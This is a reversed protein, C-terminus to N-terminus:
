LSAGLRNGLRGSAWAATFIVLALKAIESPQGNISGFRIWRRAGNIKRGLGPILVAVLLVLAGVMIPLSCRRLTELPTTRALIFVGTGLTVWLLQRRLFLTVDDARLAIGVSTSSYVLVVGFAALSAVILTIAIATQSSRSSDSPLELALPSM